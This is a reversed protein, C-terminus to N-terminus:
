NNIVESVANTIGCYASCRCINGSMREKIERTNLVFVSESVNETVYSADGRDVERQLAVASCIQGPTCFGCQFGDHTIFAEQMPHLMGGNAIGEISTVECGDVKVALTLCSLKREGDVIVTCAGCQGHDCGKKAGTLSLDERLLELLSRRNDVAVQHEIQNVTVSVISTHQHDRSPSKNLFDQASVKTSTLPNIFSTSIGAVGLLQMFERRSTGSFGLVNAIAMEDKSLSDTNCYVEENLWSNEDVEPKEFFEDERM